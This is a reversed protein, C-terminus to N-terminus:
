YTTGVLRYDNLPFYETFSRTADAIVVLLNHDTVQVWDCRIGKIENEKKFHILATM